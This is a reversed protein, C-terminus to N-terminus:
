AADSAEKDHAAVAAELDEDGDVGIVQEIMSRQSEYGKLKTEIEIIAIEIENLRESLREKDGELARLKLLDAEEDHRLRRLKGMIVDTDNPGSM